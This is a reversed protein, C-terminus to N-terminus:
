GVFVAELIIEKRIVIEKEFRVDAARCFAVILISVM